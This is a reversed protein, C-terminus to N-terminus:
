WFGFRRLLGRVSAKRKSSCAKTMATLGGFLPARTPSRLTGAIEKDTSNHVEVFPLQGRAQGDAVLTIRVDKHDCVLVNRVWMENKEDIPEQSWATGEANVPIFCFWPRRTSYVASELDQPPDQFPM